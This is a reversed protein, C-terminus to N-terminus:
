GGLFLFTVANLMDGTFKAPFVSFAVEIAGQKLRRLKVNGEMRENEPLIPRLYQLHLIKRGFCVM